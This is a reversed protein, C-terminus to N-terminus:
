YPKCFFNLVLFLHHLVTSGAYNQAKFDARADILKKMIEPQDYIVALMLPTNKNKDYKNLPYAQEILYSVIEIQGYHVAATLLTDDNTESKSIGTQQQLYQLIALNGFKVALPLLGTSNEVKNLQPYRKIFEMDGIEIARALQMADISKYKENDKVFFQNFNRSKQGPNDLLKKLESQFWIKTEQNECISSDLSSCDIINIIYKYLIAYEM